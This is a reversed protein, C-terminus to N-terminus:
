LISPLRETIASALSEAASRVSASRMALNDEGEGADQSMLAMLLAREALGNIFGWAMHELDISQSEALSNVDSWTHGVRCAFRRRSPDGAQRLPGGCDPCNLGIAGGERTRSHSLSWVEEEDGPGDTQDIGDEPPDDEPESPERALQVLRPAIESAPLVYSVADRHIAVHPMGAFQAEDPDQVIAIGGQAAITKLGETGDAGTGSLVVGVVRPGFARAASRFLPDAAPRTSNERPGFVLRMRGPELVLHYRNPPAVYIHGPVIAAGDQAAVAPLAGARQLIAPLASRAGMPLHLVIFVAAPLGAPLRSVVQLLAELGGASAGVVIVDRGSIRARELTQQSSQETTVQAM